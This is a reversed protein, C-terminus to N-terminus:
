MGSRRVSSSRASSRMRSSARVTESYVSLTSMKLDPRSPAISVSSTLVSEVIAPITMAACFLSPRLINWVRVSTSLM